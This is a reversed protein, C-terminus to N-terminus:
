QLQEISFSDLWLTGFIPCPPSGCHQRELTVSVAGSKEETTFDFSVVDWDSSGQPLPMSQGLRRGEKSTDYVVVLPLVGSVIEHTRRAFKLRYKIAPQLVLLQSILHTGPSSDGSFEIRLSRGGVHPTSSDQSMKVASPNRQIRWGFGTENLSLAGEFGGDFIGGESGAVVGSVTTQWIAFAERFAGANILKQVLERRDKSTSEATAQFQILAEAGRGKRALFHAFALRMRDSEIQVLRETEGMDGKSIGWALDIVNATLEPNSRAAMRLDAFAEDFRGFRLLLNGRQWRPQAYYPALRVAENFAALAGAADEVQERVVGLSLWLHYDRPRLSTAQGLADVADLPQGLHYLLQARKTHAEPDSSNLQVAQYATVVNSTLIAHNGLLRSFATRVSVMALLGLGVIMALSLAFHVPPRTM